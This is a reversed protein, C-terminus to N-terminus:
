FARAQTQGPYETKISLGNFTRRNGSHTMPYLASLRKVFMVRTLKERGRINNKECYEDYAKLLPDRDARYEPGAVCCEELFDRLINQNDRYANTAEALVAPVALGSEQCELWGRVAWALVAARARPDHQFYSKVRGDREEEPVVHEFPVRVVRRWIPSDNSKIQPEDNAAIWLKFRPRCEVAKSYLERATVEDGGTISAVLGEALKKGEDIEIATVLRADFLRAIDDRISGSFHRAILTDFDATKAYRGMVAKLADLFTSKGTGPKGHLFFFKEYRTDGTLTYGAARALFAIVDADGQTTTLLFEEWVDDRADPDYEVPATKTILHKRDHPLLAGTRLDVVGNLCNFFLPDADLDGLKVPVGREHAALRVIANFRREEESKLAWASAKKRLDDNRLTYAEEYLTRITEKALTFIVASEDETWARGDWIHWTKSRTLYRINEGHRKVLREANGLDTLNFDAQDVAYREQLEAALKDTM